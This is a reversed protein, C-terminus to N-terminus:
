EVIETVKAKGLFQTNILRSFAVHNVSRINDGVALSDFDYFFGRFAFTNKIVKLKAESDIHINVKKVNKKM